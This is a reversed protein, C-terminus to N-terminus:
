RPCPGWAEAWREAQELSAKFTATDHLLVYCGVVNLQAQLARQTRGAGELYRAAQGYHQVAAQVDGAKLCVIGLNNTNAGLSRLHSADEPDFAAIAQLLFASAAEYDETLEYINGLTAYARGVESVNGVEKWYALAEETAVRAEDFKRASKLVMAYNRQIIFKRRPSAACLALAQEFREM